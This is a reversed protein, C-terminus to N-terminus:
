KLERSHRRESVPPDFRTDQLTGGDDLWGRKTYFDIARKNNAEVWLFARDYGLAVLKEEAATFLASGAGKDWWQPHVNIAYLQGFATDSDGTAPGLICFGVVQSGSEAVLHSTGPKPNAINRAWGEAYRESDMADLYEETMVGRYAARWASIQIDALTSADGEAPQRVIINASTM